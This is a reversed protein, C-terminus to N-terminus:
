KRFFTNQQYISIINNIVDSPLPGMDSAAANELVHDRNLMGPISVSVAPFSLCFRLAFQPPTQIEKSVLTEFLKPASAWYKRQDSTWKRRHDDPAFNETAAYQGTLFGFVLPTRAIISASHIECLSLLGSDIVRQDILNFNAQLCTFGLDRVAILGDQPSRVSIGYARIKGAQKLSELTEIIEGGRTVLDISPSHLQYLDIYDTHLRRLSAELAQRMYEPSFDQLGTADVMGCKTAYILRNRHQKLTKGIISESNGFGYFDATDFFNVGVDVASLLALSAASEDIPGYAVAGNNNGGIGWAGFGIESVSLGSSGLLRYRM